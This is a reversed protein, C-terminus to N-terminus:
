FNNWLRPLTAKQYQMYQKQGIRDHNSLLHMQINAQSFHHIITAKMRRNKFHSNKRGEKEPLLIHTKKWPLSSVLSYKRCPKM